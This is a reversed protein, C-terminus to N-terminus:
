ARLIGGFERRITHEVKARMRLASQHECGPATGAIMDEPAPVAEVGVADIWPELEAPRLAPRCLTWQTFLGRLLRGGCFAREGGYAGQFM